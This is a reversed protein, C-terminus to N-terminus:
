DNRWGGGLIGESAAEQAEKRTGFIGFERIQLEGEPDHSFLSAKWGQPTLGVMVHSRGPQITACWSSDKMKRFMLAVSVPSGEFSAGM